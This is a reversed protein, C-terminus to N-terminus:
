GKVASAAVSRVFWRQFGLFVMLVPLVMMVGFAMIEGWPYPPQAQFVSIALPLPRVSPDSVMLVPWLFASWQSLFTLIAVTAFVPKSMPVVIQFFMRWPGAGDVRAAEEIEAPLTRFFTTFLYISFANVVFPVAQVAVTNRYDNLMYLLPVAIAEFPLVAVALVLAFVADRGRWRMRAFAYAALSNVLLGGIVVILTVGVSVAYFGLFYGTDPGDFRDFVAQYNALSLHEPAFGGLGGLVEDNPKLSGIVMYAIPAIFLLAVCTMLAYDAARIVRDVPRRRNM